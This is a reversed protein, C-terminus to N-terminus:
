VLLAAIKQACTKALLSQGLSAAAALQDHLHRSVDPYAAITTLLLKAYRISKRLCPQSAALCLAAVHKRLKDQVARSM